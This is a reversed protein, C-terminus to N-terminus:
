CIQKVGQGKDATDYSMGHLMSINQLFQLLGFANWRFQVNCKEKDVTDYSMGHLM